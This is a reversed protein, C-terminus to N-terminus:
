CPIGMSQSDRARKSMTWVVRITQGHGLTTLTSSLLSSMAQTGPLYALVRGLKEDAMRKEISRLSRALQTWAGVVGSGPDQREERWGKVCTVM